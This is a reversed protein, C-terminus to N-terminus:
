VGNPLEPGCASCERRCAGNAPLVFAVGLQPAHALRGAPGDQRPYRVSQRTNAEVAALRSTSERRSSTAPPPVAIWLSRTGISRLGAAARNREM